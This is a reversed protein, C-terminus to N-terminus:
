SFWGFSHLFGHLRSTAGYEDVWERVAKAIEGIPQVAGTWPNAHSVSVLVTTSRMAEM